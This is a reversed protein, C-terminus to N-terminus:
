ASQKKGFQFFKAAGTAAAPRAYQKQWAALDVPHDRKAKEYGGPEKILADIDVKQGAPPPPGGGITPPAKFPTGGPQANALLEDLFAAKLAITPAQDIVARQRDTLTAKAAEIRATERAHWARGDDALPKLAAIEANRAALDATQAALLADLDGSRKIREREADAAAAQAKAAAADKAEYEAIKARMIAVDPDVKPPVVPPPTDVPPPTVPDAM